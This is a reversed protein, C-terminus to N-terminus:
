AQALRAFVLRGHSTTTVSTLSVKVTDGILHDARQVIVMTGDPLHGIAQGPEKGSRALHVEVEDGSTVPAAMAKALAHLNLVNVGALGAADALHQDLTILAVKRRLCIQVLKADVESVGAPDDQIVELPLDDRLKALVDLGRRGRARRGEDASDALGQLEGVVAQPVLLTGTLFGSRAVQLIRGDIAVSTDVVKPGWGPSVTSSGARQGALDGRIVAGRTRAIRFGALAGLVVLFAFLAAMMAAPGLLFLPWAVLSVGVMGVIAGTFGAVVQDPPLTNLRREGREISRLLRRSFVGGLSYGLGAGVIVSAVTVDFLGLIRGPNDAQLGTGVQFGVAAGFVVLLLRLVEAGLDPVRSLRPM